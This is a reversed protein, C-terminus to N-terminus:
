PHQLENVCKMGDTDSRAVKAFTQQNLEPTQAFILAELVSNHIAMEFIQPFPAKGLDGTAEPRRWLLDLASCIEDGRQVWLRALNERGIRIVVNQGVHVHFFDSTIKLNGEVAFLNGM